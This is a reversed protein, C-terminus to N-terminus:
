WENIMILMEYQNPQSAKVVVVDCNGNLGDCKYSLHTYGMNSGQGGSTHGTIKAKLEGLSSLMDEMMLKAIQDMDASDCELLCNVRLETSRGNVFSSGGAM